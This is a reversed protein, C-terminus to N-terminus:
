LIHLIFKLSVTRLRFLRRNDLQKVIQRGKGSNIGEYSTLKGFKMSHEIDHGCLLRCEREARLALEFRFPCEQEIQVVVPLASGVGPKRAM